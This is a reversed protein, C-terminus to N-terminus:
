FGFGNETITKLPELVWNGAHSSVADAMYVRSGHLDAALVLGTGCYDNTLMCSGDNDLQIHWQQGTYNGAIALHPTTKDDGYVDLCKDAGLWMTCLNYAGTSSTSPRLQWYQGSYNGNTAMKMKGDRHQNGDNVVDLAM